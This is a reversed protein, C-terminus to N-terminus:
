IRGYHGVRSYDPSLLTPGDENRELIVADFTKELFNPLDIPGHLYPRVSGFGRHVHTLANSM